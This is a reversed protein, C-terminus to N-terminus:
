HFRLRDTLKNRGGPYGKSLRVSYGRYDVPKTVLDYHSAAEAVEALAFENDKTFTPSGGMLCGDGILYALLKIEYEPLSESGFCGSVRPRAVYDGGELSEAKVWGRQTMIPHTPTVFLSTGSRTLVKVIDKVGNDFKKTVVRSTSRLDHEDFSQVVNIKDLDQIEVYDGTAMDVVRMDGRECKATGLFGEIIAMEHTQVGYTLEDLWDMSFSIGPAFGNVERERYLDLMSLADSFRTVKSGPMERAFKRAGEMIFTEADGVRAPDDAVDSAERIFDILATRKIQRMMAEMLSGISDTSPAPEFRPFRMMLLEMSPISRFRRLHELMWEYVEGPLPEPSRDGLQRQRFHKPELEHELVESLSQSRAIATM